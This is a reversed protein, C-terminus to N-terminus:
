SFSCTKISLIPKPPPISVENFTNLSISTFTFTNETLLDAVNNNCDSNVIFDPLLLKIINKLSGAFDGNKSTSVKEALKEELKSELEDVVCYFIKSNHESKTLIVDYMKKQYCIEGDEIWEVDPSDTIIHVDKAVIGHELSTKAIKKFIYKFQYYVFIYGASNFM